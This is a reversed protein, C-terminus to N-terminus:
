PIETMEVIGQFDASNLTLLNTNNNIASNNEIANITVDRDTMNIIGSFSTDNVITMTDVYITESIGGGGSSPNDLHERVTSGQPVTSQDILFQRLTAM